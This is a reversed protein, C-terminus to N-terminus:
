HDTWLKRLKWNGKPRRVRGEREKCLGSMLVGAKKNPRCYLLM